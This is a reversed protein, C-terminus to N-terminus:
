YMYFSLSMIMKAQFVMIDIDIYVKKTKWVKQIKKKKLQRLEEKINLINTTVKIYFCIVQSTSM